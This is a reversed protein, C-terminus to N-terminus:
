AAVVARARRRLSAGAAGFGLIMLAWTGPEPVVAVASGSRVARSVGPTFAEISGEPSSVTLLNVTGGAATLPGVFHLYLYGGVSPRFMINDHLGYLESGANGTSPQYNTGPAVAGPATTIDWNLAKKIDTDYSFWGTATAGDVFTVDQLTWTLVAASASTAAGLVACALSAALVLKKM